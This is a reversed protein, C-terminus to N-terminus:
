NLRTESITFSDFNSIEWCFEFPTWSQDSNPRGINLGVQINLGHTKPLQENLIVKPASLKYICWKLRHRSADLHISSNMAPPVWCLLCSFQIFPNSSSKSPTRPLLFIPNTAVIEESTFLLVPVSPLSDKLKYSSATLSFIKFFISSTKDTTLKFMTVITQTILDLRDWFSTQGTQHHRWRKRM